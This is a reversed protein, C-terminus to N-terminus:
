VMCLKSLNNVYKLLDQLLRMFGFDYHVKYEILLSQLLVVFALDQYGYDWTYTVLQLKNNLSSTKEISLVFWHTM